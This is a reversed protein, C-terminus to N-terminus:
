LRRALYCGNSAARHPIPGGDAIPPTVPLVMWRLRDQGMPDTVHSFRAVHEGERPNASHAGDGPYTPM